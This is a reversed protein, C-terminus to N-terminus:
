EFLQAPCSPPTPPEPANDQDIRKPLAHFILYSVVVTGANSAVLAAWALRKHETMSFGRYSLLVVTCAPLLLLSILIMVRALKSSYVGIWAVEFGANRDLRNGFERLHILFYLQVGLVLLVGCRVAVEAPIKLGAAEFADGTRKAEADLIREASGIDANELPEYVASLARFSDKFSRGDKEKWKESRRILAKQPNFEIEKLRRVPLFVRVEQGAPLLKFFGTFEYDWGPHSQGWKQEQRRSEHSFNMPIPSANHALDSPHQECDKSQPKNIWNTVAICESTPMIPVVIYAGTGLWDWLRQFAAITTPARLENPTIIDNPSRFEDPIPNRTRAVWSPSDFTPAVWVGKGDLQLRVDFNAPVSAGEAAVPLGIKKLDNFQSTFTYAAEDGVIDNKWTNTVQLIQSAQEHATQIETKSPFSALVILGVCLAILTFHVTRLHEVFDKSWHAAGQSNPVSV